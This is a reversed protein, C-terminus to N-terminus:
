IEFFNYGYKVGENLVKREFAELNKRIVSLQQETFDAIIANPNRYFEEFTINNIIYNDRKMKMIYAKYGIDNRDKDSKQVYSVKGQNGVVMTLKELNRGIANEVDQLGIISNTPHNHITIFAKDMSGINVKGQSGVSLVSNKLDALDYCGGVEVGQKQTSALKLLEICHQKIASNQEETLGDVSIDPVADINVNNKIVNSVSNISDKMIAYEASNEVSDAFKDNYWDNYNKYKIVEKSENDLKNSPEWGDVVPILCCRCNPHDPVNPAKDLEYKNGDLEQCHECTNSELTADWMVYKVIGSNKYANIQGETVARAVETNIVRSANYFSTDFEKKIERALKETSKGQISAERVASDMRVALKATNDWIRQSFTKDDIKQLLINDAIDTNLAAWSIGYGANKDITYAIKYYSDKLGKIVKSETTESTFNGLQQIREYMKKRLSVLQGQRFKASKPMEGDYKLGIDTIEQTISKVANNYEKLLASIEDSNNCLQQNLKTFDNVPM